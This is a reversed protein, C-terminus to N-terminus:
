DREIQLLKEFEISFRRMEDTVKQPQTVLNALMRPAMEPKRSVIEAAATILSLYNNINHRVDSLTQNLTAIQQPTITVPESPLKMRSMM